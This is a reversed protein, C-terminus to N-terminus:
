GSRAADLVALIEDGWRELRIQGMGRCAALAALTTPDSTAIGILEADKLIVYAPVADHSAMASRWTRLAQEAPGPGAGAGAGPHGEGGPGVLTVTQGEVRVDSGFAVKLRVAGLSLIAADATVEVITGTSGRNEVTLGPVAEVTPLSVERFVSGETSVPRGRRGDAGRGSAGRRGATATRRGNELEVARADAAARPTPRVRTGDLEALFMSPSEEDALAVVQYRARTLAVHFVRREGEEDHGLRHPFLGRSAGFIVVHGWERGKIRHVTSLLVSSGGPAASSSRGLVERLWAEFTAVDPHLAAVSELAALDDAHTSRDAERRSSDLVDMTDGLGVEVRIAKLAALTSRRCGRAVTELDGAYTGLKPVDRGSLRTALRRVDAVSTTPRSTLMDVVKPAIGRSPRRITELIDDRHINAPDLGIRLYAFATRIGTRQLVSSSLPTTCPVDAEMCAVQVPLLASNVRALVAIDDPDIGGERWASITDVALGALEDAAATLVTVPGRGDLPKAFGPVGDARGEPAHIEKEVRRVNYSLLHRAADIVAPPCRYNVTLAHAAASPFYSPFNILFEPTAGSYGYIVQDDDGVGFCDYTPACLLRILLLHAPNLDQFEDVLLYRCKAQAAARAAPDTLLIELALYIQEDFDVAGADLLAARYADFGEAVGVADPIEEEVLDPATLGLRIASIAEIYPAVTDTNSQRRIEILRQLLDRVGAEEVVRLRGSRSFENCIWLGLSNLTRINLTEAGDIDRCRERLEGVAKNNYALATITSPHVGCHGVLYRLRETLVRTKGSGAPAIVRAPGARHHVAALQDPALDAVDAAGAAGRATRLSGAEANWRHVVGTGSALSPPQPPGGDVFLPTGDPLLIDGEDPDGGERVDQSTCRRVAKRGHWWVPAGGRADYNNAWILFQLRELRFEFDPRLEYVAHLCHEPARLAVPDAGLEVVVPQRNFWYGHLEEVVPGPDKLSAEDILVRPCGGWGEPPDVGPLVVVGRGLEVPPQTIM